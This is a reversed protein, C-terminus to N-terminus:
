RRVEVWGLSVADGYGEGIECRAPLARVAGGELRYMGAVLRYRGVGLDAPLPIATTDTITRGPPWATTPLSAGTAPNDRGAIQEGKENLVHLYSAYDHQISETPRWYLSARLTDGRKIGNWAVGPALSYGELTMSDGGNTLACNLGYQPTAPFM